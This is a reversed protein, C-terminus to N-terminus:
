AAMPVLVSSNEIFKELQDLVELNLHLINHKTLYLPHDFPLYTM